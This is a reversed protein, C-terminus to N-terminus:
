QLFVDSQKQIIERSRNTLIFPPEKTAKGNIKIKISKIIKLLFTFALLLILISIGIKISLPLPLETKQKLGSIYENISRHDSAYVFILTIIMLLIVIINALSLGYKNDKYM